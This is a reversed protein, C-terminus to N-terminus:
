RTRIGPPRFWAPSATRGTRVRPRFASHDGGFQRRRQDCVADQWGALAGPQQRRRRHLDTGSPLTGPPAITSIAEIVTNSATDIVAVQDSNDQTVYLRSQDPSLLLSNPNGPLKIRTILGPSTGAISVVVVERDRISSVYAVTDGKVAVTFPAEGGAVGIGSAGSTNYPRLDYEYRVTNTATDIVTISNNYINAAVLVSGDASLGLGAVTSGEEFGIGTGLM